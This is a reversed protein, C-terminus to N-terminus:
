IIEDLSCLLAAISSFLMIYGGIKRIQKERDSLDEKPYFFLPVFTIFSKGLRRSLKVQLFSILILGIFFCIVSFFQILTILDYQM